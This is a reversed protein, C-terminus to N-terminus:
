TVVVFAEGPLSRTTELRSGNETFRTEARRHAASGPEPPSTVAINGTSRLRPPVHIPQGPAASNGAGAREAM